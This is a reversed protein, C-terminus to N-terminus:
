GDDSTVPLEGFNLINMSATIVGLLSSPIVLAVADGQGVFSDSHHIAGERKEQRALGAPNWWASESVPQDAVVAQGLGIARAGIPVLLFLAGDQDQAALPPAAGALAALATLGIGIRSLRRRM